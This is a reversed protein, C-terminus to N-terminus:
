KLVEKRDHICLLNGSKIEVQARTSTMVNSIGRSQHFELNENQLPYQLFATTIGCVVPSLSLLSILDGTAGNIEAKSRILFVETKGDDIRMDIGALQPLSLLHINALTQDLRGGLAGVVTIKECGSEAASLLALELDTEDKNVPYRRVQSGATEAKLVQEATASDLDGILLDPELGMQQIYALGGDAAILLSTSDIFGRVVDPCCLEGNAFIVAHKAM